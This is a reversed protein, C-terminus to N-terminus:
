STKFDFLGDMKNSLFILKLLFSASEFISFGVCRKLPVTKRKLEYLFRLNIAFSHHTPARSLFFLVNKTSNIKDLPVKKLIQTKDLHITHQIYM